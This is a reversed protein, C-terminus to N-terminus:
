TTTEKLRCLTEQLKDRFAFVARELDEIYEEDREVRLRWLALGLKPPIRPDFSVFDWWRRGTIWMLGQVQPVHAKPLVGGLMYELHVSSNFPCKIEIGGDEGVLGDPSGGIMPEEPHTVFGVETVELGTRAEYVDRADPENNIGWKMAKTTYTDKEQRTLQEALVELMYSRATQSLEGAERAAKTKPQTMPEAFRSATFKGLRAEKWEPTGQVLTAADSVMSM